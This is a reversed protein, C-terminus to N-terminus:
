RSLIEKVYQGTYSRTIGAVIEPPGIAVIQGGKDGGEPGLDIIWDASKIVDLNHEIVIVTNGQDTLRQLIGLLRRVDEFHLGTTPEDLIYVTKGTARKSLEAALKVRQAEGGSLTPASQGLKLYGLGVDVLTALKDKVPPIKEFFEYAEEITMDLVDAISRGKFRIELTAAAYRKGKCVECPVYVDPLFHMEIKNQGEGRCAECRGGRSETRSLHARAVSSAERPPLGGSSRASVNFSFTGPTYGRARAQATNAFLTRIPDFAKVYTAPNSRPTRGIPSQDIDIVKDIEHIGEVRTHAGAKEWGRHLKFYLVRYLIENVLTSKGSGSVGTVATFLGLPFKVDINKLNHERAGIVTLFRGAHKRRQHPIAIKKVGRLYQGTLSAPNQEIEAPSGHAVIEGGHIGAGPGLDVLIDATRMTEEDHEIVIVTNGAEKLRVLTDLLRRNDRQHLGISPEDLVYLVGVLAAGIQSALRIRQTEGGSLTVAARDLTLYELGVNKLFNLREIIERLVREAIKQERASLDLTEFFALAETISLATVQAISRANIKVGLAEQKLRAGTCTPCPLNTMFREIEERVTESTTTRWREQLMPIMGRFWMGFTRNHGSSFFRVRVKVPQSAGYLMTDLQDKTLNKVPTQIPIGFENAASIILAAYYRAHEFSWPLIGGGSITKQDDPVVLLPDIERKFGLGTCTPCAGYPSNFSFIRPEIEGISTGDYPCTLQENLTIEEKSRAGRSSGEMPALTVLGEARQLSTQIAETLRITSDESGDLLFEDVVAEITHAKYRALTVRQNLKHLTGNIRARAVGDAYLDQLLQHYTGKRGRVVPALVLLPKGAMCEQAFQVMQDLTFARVPRDCKPCHPIGVRAFLVRLYDYIETVTGVTSRPNRSVAKQDISIAPSLGDIHDVDPKEMQGLFQRAYSSLSEMYRRQGEAYLTDFALSSKGSGSIGTFVILKNRELDLSINKLNHERAGKISIVNEEMAQALM